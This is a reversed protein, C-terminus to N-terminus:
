TASVPSSLPNSPVAALAQALHATFEQWTLHRRSLNKELAKLVVADVAPPLGPRHASPPVPAANLIAYALATQSGAAFPPRGTLLRYLTAGLSYIDTQHTLPEMRVQEPAMYAPSGIGSVQTTVWGPRQQLSAGFDGIKIEGGRSLLLNGPKIDRHIIGQQAAYDLAGACRAVIELVRGTPLLTGVGAHSELTTGPVYEMVVYAHDSWAAADLVEVINPHRLRGALSAEALFLKRKLRAAKGADGADAFLFLKIAVDRACVPDRALYVQSTAGQGLEGLVPYRGFQIQEPM